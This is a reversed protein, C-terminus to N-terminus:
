AFQPKYGCCNSCNQDHSLSGEDATHNRGASILDHGTGSLNSGKAESRACKQYGCILKSMNGNFIHSKPYPIQKCCFILNFFLIEFPSM